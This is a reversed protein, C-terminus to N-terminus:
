GGAAALTIGTIQGGSVTFAATAPNAVATVSLNGIKFNGDSMNDWAANTGKGVFTYTLTGANNTLSGSWPPNTLGLDTLAAAGTTKSNTLLAASAEAYASRINAQDTADRSKELQSTFIPISIAVLVGKSIGGGRRSRFQKDRQADRKDAVLGAVGNRAINGEQGKEDFRM